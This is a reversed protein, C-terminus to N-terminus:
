AYWAVVALVCRLQRHGPWQAAGAAWLQQTLSVFLLLDEGIGRAVTTDWPIRYAEREKGRIFSGLAAAALPRHVGQEYM